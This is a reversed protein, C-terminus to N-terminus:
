FVVDVLRRSAERYTVRVNGRGSDFFGIAPIGNQGAAIYILGSRTENATKVRHSYQLEDKTSLGVHVLSAAKELEHVEFATETQRIALGAGLRSNVDEVYERIADKLYGFAICVNEGPLLDFASTTEQLDQM